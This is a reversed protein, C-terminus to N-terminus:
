EGYVILLTMGTEDLYVSQCNGLTNATSYMVEWVKAAEDYNVTVTDYEITCENLAQMKVDWIRNSMPVSEANVFGESKVGPDGTKFTATVDAYSFSGPQELHLDVPIGSVIAIDKIVQMDEAPIEAFQQNFYIVNYEYTFYYPTKDGSFEIHGDFYYALRDVLADNVWTDVDDIIKRLEEAQKKSISSADVIVPDTGERTPESYFSITGEGSGSEDDKAYCIHWENEYLVAVGEKVKAYPIGTEKNFNTQGNKEPFTDTYSDTYGIIASEDIEGPVAVSLYYVTGEVMIAAPYDTETGVASCGALLLSLMMLVTVSMRKVFVGGEMCKCIYVSLVGFHEQRVFFHGAVGHSQGDIM